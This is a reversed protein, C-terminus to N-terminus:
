KCNKRLKELVDLFYPPLPIEFALREGTTPQDLELRYATLLQGALGFKNSGGYVDDGVVPHHIYKAHVRIQHTRGTKLEFKVLTYQGFREVVTYLTTAERGGEVVAMQKRDKPNRAIPECIVGEDEKINGDVLAMYFRKAEKTAIQEALSLHAKDNKAVVLLGSTNKDLRHVIGPRVVGNIGSFRDRVNMLANVLTGSPTGVSPHVVLGQQKNVVIMDADEYVIDIPIDEPAVSLEVPDVTQVAVSDKASLAYGNKTVVKGNVSVNGMGILKQALSRTVDEVSAAVAADLRAPSDVVFVVLDAM